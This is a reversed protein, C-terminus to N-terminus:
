RMSGDKIESRSICCKTRRVVAFVTREQFVQAILLSIGMCPMPFRGV